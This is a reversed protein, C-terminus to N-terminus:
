SASTALRKSRRDHLFIALIGFGAVAIILFLLVNLVATEMQVAALLAGEKDRWTSIKFVQPPFSARLLDRVMNLDVGSKLRIQIANCNAIKTSPDIM